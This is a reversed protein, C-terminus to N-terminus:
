VHHDEYQSLIKLLFSHPLTHYTIPIRPLELHDHYIYTRGRNVTTATLYHSQQVINKIKSNYNGYPYCFHEVKCGFKQELDAKSQMIETKAEAKTCETLRTHHQTHSGIEIGSNIWQQVEKHSMLPNEMIGQNLDWENIDGIKQSVIYCTATFGFQKLIPLAETLNNQYGDDFTIGVVKGQKEGKLYPLLKGMSLGKYGLWKLIRMQIQFRKPAVHLSRMVSGKPMKAISHYMLIPIPRQPM